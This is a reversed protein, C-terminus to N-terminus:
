KKNQNKCEKKRGLRRQRGYCCDRISRSDIGTQRKEEAASPYSTVLSGDELNFSEVPKSKHNQAAPFIQNPFRWGLGGASQRKGNCCYSICMHSIGTLRKAEAASPYSAVLSGDELNFSEVPKEKSTSGGATGGGVLDSIDGVGDGVGDGRSSSSSSWDADEMDELAEPVTCRKKSDRV